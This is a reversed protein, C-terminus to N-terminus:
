DFLFHEEAEAQLAELELEFQWQVYNQDFERNM